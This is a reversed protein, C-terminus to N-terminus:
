VPTRLVPTPDAVEDATDGRRTRRSHNGLVVAVIALLAYIASLLLGYRAQDAGTVMATFFSGGFTNLTAHWVAALSLQGSARFMQLLIMQFAANGVIGMVWGSDGTLMLPLHWLIRIPALIAWAGLLGHRRLLLPAAFATWGAEEGIGIWVLNVVFILPIDPWQGLQATTPLPAGLGHNILVIIVHVALPVLVAVAYWAPSARWTRLRRWWTALSARGQCAVVVLAAVGPGLPDNGPDSGLGFAAAIYRWWGFLCALATFSLMPHARILRIPNTMTSGGSHHTTNAAPLGAEPVSQTTIM